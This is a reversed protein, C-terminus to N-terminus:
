KNLKNVEKIIKIGYDLFKTRAQKNCIVEKLTDETLVVGLVNELNHRALAFRPCNLIIHQIDEKQAPDCPCEPSEKCKFRHLYASFGGHGTFMQVLEPTLPIKRVLRYAESADPFFIKTTSGQEGNQYRRNWEDISDLRIQRKVFSVPCVSYDPKRKIDVAAKALVDARENGELGAHAKIWFLKVTKSSGRITNLNQCINYAIPHLSVGAAITELASRSDCYINFAKAKHSLALETAKQLALLEAQYVTCFSELKFKRSTTEANDRWLSLAAGVKGDLKSGDTFINCVSSDNQLLAAGDVVCEFNYGVQDVPHPASVVPVPVEVGRDGVVRQSYGRKVEYLAAAEQIRLDLPLLGALLLASNLSVTRYAKVLKQAFGRQVTDLEKRVGLKSAAPAWASAAYMIVPEVVSVYITRIVEPSLGWHM